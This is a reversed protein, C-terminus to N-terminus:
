PRVTFNESTLKNFEQTTLYKDKNDNTKINNEIETITINYDTEILNSVNPTKNEVVTLGSPGYLNTIGPIKGKIKKIKDNLTANLLQLQLM